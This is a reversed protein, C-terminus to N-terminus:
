QELQKLVEVAASGAAPTNAEMGNVLFAFAITGGSSKEVYGALCYADRVQGSKLRMRDSRYGFDQLRGDMGPRSLSALFPKFWPQKAATRLFSVMQEASVRNMESVGSGDDVVLMAPDIGSAGLFESVAQSGKEKTGPSGYKLAGLLFLLNDAAVNLSHQNTDRVYSDIDRSGVHAIESTGPRLAGRKVTGKVAIGKKRLLTLMTGGAYLGPDALSFRKHVGAADLKAGTVEYTLDDIQRIDAKGSPNMSVKVADNPPDIAIKPQDGEATVSVTHMDLGLASPMGYAPGSYRAKWEKVDFLTDDIIVNGNVEKIGLM